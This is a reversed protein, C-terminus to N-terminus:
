QLGLLENLLTHLRSNEAKHGAIENQLEEITPLVTASILVGHKCPGAGCHCLAQRIGEFSEVNYSM